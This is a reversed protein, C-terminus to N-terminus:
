MVQNNELFGVRAIRRQTQAKAFGAFYSGAARGASRELLAGGEDAGGTLGVVARAGRKAGVEAADIPEAGDTVGIVISEFDTQTVGSTASFEQGAVGPRFRQVIGGAEGVLENGAIWVEAVAVRRK